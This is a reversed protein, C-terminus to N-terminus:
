RHGLKHLLGSDSVYPILAGYAADNAGMIVFAWFTAFTRYVNVKPHNWREVVNVTTSPQPLYETPDNNDNKPSLPIQDNSSGQIEQLEINTQSTQGSPTPTSTATITAM